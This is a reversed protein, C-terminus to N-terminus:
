GIGQEVRAHCLPNQVVDGLRGDGTHGFFARGEGADEVDAQHHGRATRLHKLEIGPEAIRLRLGDQQPQLRVQHLGQFGAYVAPKGFNLQAPRM